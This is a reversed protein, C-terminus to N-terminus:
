TCVGSVCIKGTPCGGACGSAGSGSGTVPGCVGPTGMLGMTSCPEGDLCGCNLTEGACGNFLDTGCAAPYLTECTGPVCGSGTGSGGTGSGIITAVCVGGSCADGTPCDAVVNCRIEDGPVLLCEAQTVCLGYTASV